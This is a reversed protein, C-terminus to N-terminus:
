RLGLATPRWAAIMTIVIMAGNHRSSWCQLPPGVHGGADRHRIIMSSEVYPRVWTDARMSMRRLQANIILAPRWAPRGRCHRHM